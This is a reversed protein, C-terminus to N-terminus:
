PKQYVRSAGAKAAAEVQLPSGAGSIIIVPLQNLPSEQKRVWEVLELGSENEMRLDTIIVDAMPYVSRDAYMGAGRLYARAESPNRCVLPAGCRPSRGLARAILFADNADNEVILFKRASM